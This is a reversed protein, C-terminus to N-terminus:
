KSILNVTTIILATASLLLSYAPSYQSSNMKVQNQEVYVVDNQELYYVPSNMFDKKTLDITYESRKNNTERIVKINTRKGTINLDRAIGLAEIITVRENPITFTGPAGVDGLVTVKFNTIRILVTPSSLYAELQKKLNRTVEERSKNAVLIEGLIPFNIYGKEDVLYGTPIPNGNTYSGNYTSRSDPLNFPLSAEADISNVKIDLLDGSKFVPNFFCSDCPQQLDGTFYILKKRQACNTSVAVVVIIAAIIRLIKM